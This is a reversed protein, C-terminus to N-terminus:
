KFDHEVESLKHEIKKQKLHKTLTLFRKYMKKIDNALTEEEYYDSIFIVDNTEIRLFLCDLSIRTTMRLQSGDDCVAMIWGPMPLEKFGYFRVGLSTNHELLVLNCKEFFEDSLKM